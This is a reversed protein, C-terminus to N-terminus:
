SYSIIPGYYRKHTTTTVIDCYEFPSPIVDAAVMGAIHAMDGMLYAGVKDCIKRMRAYDYFRPYASMGAVIIKPRYYTAHEELKDYDIL